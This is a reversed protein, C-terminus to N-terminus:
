FPLQICILIDFKGKTVECADRSAPALGGRVLGDSVDLQGIPAFDPLLNSLPGPMQGFNVSFGQNKTLIHPYLARDGLSKKTLRFAVGQERGNVTYKM